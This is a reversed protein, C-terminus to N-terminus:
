AVSKKSTMKTMKTLVLWKSDNQTELSKPVGQLWIGLKMEKFHFQIKHWIHFQENLMSFSPGSHNFEWGLSQQPLSCCVYTHFPIEKGLANTYNLLRSQEENVSGKWGDPTGIYLLPAIESISFSDRSWDGGLIPTVTSYVSPHFEIKHESLWNQGLIFLCSIKHPFTFLYRFLFLCFAILCFTTNQGLTNKKM